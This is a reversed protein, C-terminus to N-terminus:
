RFVNAVGGPHRGPKAGCLVCRLSPMAELSDRVDVHIFFYFSIAIVHPFCIPVFCRLRAAGAYAFFRCGSRCPRAASM